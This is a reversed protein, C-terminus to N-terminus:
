IQIRFLTHSSCCDHNKFIDSAIRYCIQYSFRVNQIGYFSFSCLPLFVLWYFLSPFQSCRLHYRQCRLLFVILYVRLKDSELQISLGVM